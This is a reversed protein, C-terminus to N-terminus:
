DAPPAAPLQALHELHIAADEAVPTAPGTIAEPGDIRLAGCRACVECVYPGPLAFSVGRLRWIHDCASPDRGDNGHNPPEPRRWLRMIIEKDQTTGQAHCTWSPTDLLLRLSAFYHLPFPLCM